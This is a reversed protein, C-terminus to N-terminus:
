MRVIDDALDSNKVSSFSCGIRHYEGFGLKCIEVAAVHYCKEVRM